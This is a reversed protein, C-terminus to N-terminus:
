SGLTTFYTIGLGSILASILYLYVLRRWWPINRSARFIIPLSVISSIWFLMFYVFMNSESPLQNATLAMMPLWMGAGTFTVFLIFGIKDLGSQIVTLIDPKIVNNGVIQESDVIIIQTVTLPFIIQTIIHIFLIGFITALIIRENWNLKSSVLM